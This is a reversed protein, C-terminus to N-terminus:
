AHTRHTRRGHGIGGSREDAASAHRPRADAPGLAAAALHWAHEEQSRGALADALAHHARRRESAAAGHVVASRMLPHRFGVRGGEIAILGADEALELAHEDLDLQRLAEVIPEVRASSSVAAVVLARQAPGPLRVAREAFVRELASGVPLPDTLPEVGLLQSPSLLAAVEVLALPNGGTAGRIRGAVEPAVQTGAHSAVLAAAADSEIGALTVTEFARRDFVGGGDDDRAAVLLAVREAALRRAAFLMADASAADLWQVDDLLVLVPVDEAAAALLSLTAAGVPLRDVSDGPGIGLAGTLAERQRVALEDLRDLLPRCVDFLGSFELQAESEVGVARVVTMEGAREAAYDLLATKGIGAEGLVLLVGATGTRARALLRDVRVCERDRGVLM